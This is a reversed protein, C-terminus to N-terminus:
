KSTKLSDSNLSVVDDDVYDQISNNEGRTTHPTSLPFSAISQGIRREIDRVHVAQEQPSLDRNTTADHYSLSQRSEGLKQRISELAQQQAYLDSEINTDDYQQQKRYSALIQRREYVKQRMEDLLQMGTTTTTTTTSTTATTSAPRSWDTPSTMRPQAMTTTSQDERLALPPLNNLTLTDGQLRLTTETQKRQKPHQYKLPYQYFSSSSNRYSRLRHVIDSHQLIHEQINKDPDNYSQGTHLLDLIRRQTATTPGSQDHVRAVIARREIRGYREHFPIEYPDNYRSKAPNYAMLVDYRGEKLAQNVNSLRVMENETVASKSKKMRRCIHSVWQLVKPGHNTWEFVSRVHGLECLLKYEVIFMNQESTHVDGVIRNIGNLYQNFFPFPFFTVYTETPMNSFRRHFFDHHRRFYSDRLLYMTKLRQLSDGPQMYNRVDDDLVNMALCQDLYKIANTASRTYDRRRQAFESDPTYPPATCTVLKQYKKRQMARACAVQDMCYNQLLECRRSHLPRFVRDKGPRGYPAAFQRLIAPRIHARIAVLNFRSLQTRVHLATTLFWEVVYHLDVLYPYYYRDPDRQANAYWHTYWQYLTDLKVMRELLDNHLVLSAENIVSLVFDSWSGQFLVSSTQLRHILQRTRQPSPPELRKRCEANCHRRFSRSVRPPILYQSSEMTNTEKRYSAIRHFSFFPFIVLDAFLRRKSSVTM